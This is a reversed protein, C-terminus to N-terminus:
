TGKPISLIGHGTCSAVCLHVFRNNHIHRWRTRHARDMDGHIHRQAQASIWAPQWTWLVWNYDVSWAGFRFFIMWWQTFDVPSSVSARFFFLSVFCFLFFVSCLSILSLPSLSRPESRFTTSVAKSNPNEVVSNFSVWLLMFFLLSMFITGGEQLSCFTSGM